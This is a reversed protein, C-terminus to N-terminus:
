FMSSERLSAIRASAALYSAEHADLPVAFRVDPFVPMPDVSPM